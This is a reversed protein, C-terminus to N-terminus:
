RERTKLVKSAERTEDRIIAIAADRAPKDKPFQLFAQRVKAYHTKLFALKEKSKAKM